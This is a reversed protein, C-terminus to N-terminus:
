DRRQAMLRGRLNAPVKFEEIAGAIASKEDPQNWVIGVLRAPTGKLHYIAWSHAQPKSPRKAMALSPIADRFPRGAGHMVFIYQARFVEARTM